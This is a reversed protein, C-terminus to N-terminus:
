KVEVNIEYTKAPLTTTDWPQRYDLKLTTKGAAIAQFILTIKGGAGMLNSDAKFVPDGVQKLIAGDLGSAVWNYGTTPNGDLTIKFQENKVIAISQGADKETLVKVSKTSSCAGILIALLLILSIKTTRSM